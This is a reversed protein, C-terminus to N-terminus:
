SGVEGRDVAFELIHFGEHALELLKKRSAIM